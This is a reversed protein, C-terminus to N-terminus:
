FVEQLRFVGDSAEEFLLTVTLNKASSSGAAETSLFYYCAFGHSKTNPGKRGSKRYHDPKGLIAATEEQTMGCRLRKLKEAFARFEAVSKRMKFLDASRNEELYKEMLPMNLFFATYPRPDPEPLVINEFIIEKKRLYKYYRGTTELRIRLKGGQNTFNPSLRYQTGPGM